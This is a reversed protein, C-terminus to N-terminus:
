IRVTPSKRGFEHLHVNLLSTCMNINLKEVTFYVNNNRQLDFINEGDSTERETRLVKVHCLHVWYYRIYLFLRRAYAYM